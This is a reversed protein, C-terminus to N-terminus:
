SRKKFKIMKEGIFDERLNEEKEEREEHRSDVYLLVIFIHLGLSIGIQNTLM